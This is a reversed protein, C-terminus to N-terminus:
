NTTSFPSSRLSIRLSVAVFVGDLTLVPLGHVRECYANEPVKKPDSLWLHFHSFSTSSTNFYVREPRAAITEINPGMSEMELAISILHITRMKLLHVPEDLGM